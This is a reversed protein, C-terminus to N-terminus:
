RKPPGKPPGKGGGGPPGGGGKPPGGGGSGPPGQGEDDDEYLSAIQSEYEADKAANMLEPAPGLKGYWTEPMLSRAEDLDIIGNGFAMVVSSAQKEATEAARMPDAAFPDEWQFEPPEDIGNNAAIMEDFRKIIPDLMAMRLSILMHSYNTNDGSGTANMGDPAKGLFRTAPIDAIAAIRAAFRDMLDAAGAFSVAIREAEDGTDMFMTRYISKYRNVATAIETVSPEAPNIRGKIMEKFGDISVAFISSEDALYGFARQVTADRIIATLARTLVSEGWDSDYVHTHSRMNIPAVNGEFRFVRSHHVLVRGDGNFMARSREPLKSLMDGVHALDRDRDITPMSIYYLWPNGYEEMLPDAVVSAVSMQYQNRVVLSKITEPRVLKTDLPQAPDDGEIFVVVAGTGYLRATKMAKALATHARIKEVAEDMAEVAPDEGIWKRGNRWIDDIPMDVMKAAAWSYAYLYTALYEGIRANQIADQVEALSVAQQGGGAAPGGFARAVFGSENLADVARLVEGHEVAAVADQAQM